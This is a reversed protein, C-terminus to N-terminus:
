EVMCPEDTLGLLLRDCMEFKKEQKQHIQVKQLSRFVIKSDNFFKRVKTQKGHPGEQEFILSCCKM